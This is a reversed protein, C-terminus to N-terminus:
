LKGRMDAGCNPCFNAKSHKCACQNCAYTGNHNDVWEGKPRLADLMRKGQESLELNLYITVSDENRM